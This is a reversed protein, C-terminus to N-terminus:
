SLQPQPAALAELRKYLKKVKKKSVGKHVSSVEVEQSDDNIRFFIQSSFLVEDLQTIKLESLNLKKEVEKRFYRKTKVSLYAEEPFIRISQVHKEMLDSVTWILILVSVPVFVDFADPGEGGLLLTMISHFNFMFISGLVLATWTTGFKYTGLHKKNEFIVEM